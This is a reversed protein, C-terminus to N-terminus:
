KVMSPQQKEVVNQESSHAKAKCVSPSLSIEVIIIKRVDTHLTM